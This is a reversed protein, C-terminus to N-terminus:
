PKGLITDALLDLTGYERRYSVHYVPVMSSLKAYHPLMARWIKPPVGWAGHTNELLASMAAFGTLQGVEVSPSRFSENPQLLYLGQLRKRSLVRQDPPVTVWFKGLGPVIETCRSDPIGFREIVESWLRPHLSRSPLVSIEGEVFEVPLVDDTVLRAGRALMHWLLTSKGTGSPALVGVVGHQGEVAAAHLPVVGNCAGYLSLGLGTVFLKAEDPADGHHSFLIKPDSYHIHLTTHNAMRLLMATGLDYSRLHGSYTSAGWDLRDITSYSNGTRSVTVTPCVPDSDRSPVVEDCHLTLESELRWGFVLYQYM